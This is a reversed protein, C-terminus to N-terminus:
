QYHIGNIRQFDASLEHRKLGQELTFIPQAMHYLMASRMITLIGDWLCLKNLGENFKPILGKKAMFPVNMMMKNQYLALSYSPNFKHCIFKGGHIVHMDAYVAGAIDKDKDLVFDVLERLSGSSVFGNNEGLFVFLDQTKQTVRNYFQPTPEDAQQYEISINPYDCLFPERIGAAAVTVSPLSEEQDRGDHLSDEKQGSM